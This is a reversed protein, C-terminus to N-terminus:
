ERSPPPEVPEGGGERSHRLPPLANTNDTIPIQRDYYLTQYKYWLAKNAQQYQMEAIRRTRQAPKFYGDCRNV